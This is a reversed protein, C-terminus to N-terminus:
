YSADTMWLGHINNSKPFTSIKFTNYCFFYWPRVLLIKFTEHVRCSSYKASFSFEKCKMKSENIDLFISRYIILGGNVKTLVMITTSKINWVLTKQTIGTIQFQKRWIKSLWKYEYKQRLGDWETRTKSSSPTKEHISSIKFWQYRAQSNTHRWWIRDIEIKIYTIAAQYARSVKRSIRRQNRRQNRDKLSNAYRDQISMSM